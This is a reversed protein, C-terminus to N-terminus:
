GECQRGRGWSAEVVEITEVVIVLITKMMRMMIRRPRELLKVDVSESKELDRKKKMKRSSLLDGLGGRAAGHGNM